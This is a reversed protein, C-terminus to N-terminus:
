KKSNVMEALFLLLARQENAFTRRIIELSIDAAESEKNKDESSNKILEMILMHMVMLMQFETLNEFHSGYRNELETFLSNETNM